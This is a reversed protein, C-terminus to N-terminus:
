YNQFSPTLEFYYKKCDHVHAFNVKINHLPKKLEPPHMQMAQTFKSFELLLMSFRLFKSHSSRQAGFGLQLKVMIRLFVAARVM